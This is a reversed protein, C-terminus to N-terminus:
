FNMAGVDKMMQVYQAPRRRGVYVSTGLTYIALYVFGGLCTVLSLAVWWPLRKKKAQMNEQVGGDRGIGGSDDEYM